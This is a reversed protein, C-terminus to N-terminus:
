QLPKVKLHNVVGSWYSNNVAGDATYGGFLYLYPCNWTTIPTVAMPRVANSGLEKDYVLLSAGSTFPLYEPLQLLESGEQWNVGMDRSIYVTKDVTVEEADPSIGGFAILVERNVVKWTTTDTECITYRAMSYGQRAPLKDSVKAWRNGDFAWTAGTAKGATTTGGCVTVQPNAAWITSITAAGSIGSVPFDQPIASPTLVIGSPYSAYVLVGNQNKVGLVGDKYPATISMWDQDVGAFTIGGDISKYLTGDVAKLYLEGTASATFSEAVAAEIKGHGDFSPIIVDSEWEGGGSKQAPLFTTIACNGMADVSLMLAKDDVKVTKAAMMRDVGKLQGSQMRDWYLSDAKETAVNIVIKYNRQASGDASEIHFTVPGHAFNIKADSDKLYDIAEQQNDDNVFELRAVSCLDSSIAVAIASVDTGKPLPQANFITANMLDISFYVSDLNNLVEKNSKLSFATVATGSYEQPDTGWTDDSNCSTVACGLLAPILLLYLQLSRKMKLRLMELQLTLLNKPIAEVKLCNKM